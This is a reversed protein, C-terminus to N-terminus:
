LIWADFAPGDGPLSVIEGAPGLDVGGLLNPAPGELGLASRSVAVADHPARSARVLIREDESERLYAVAEPGVHVWRFGGERLAPHTRRLRILDRYGELLRRDWGDPDWPMPRRAGHRDPGEVGVEDGQFICPVGPFTLLIGAGV